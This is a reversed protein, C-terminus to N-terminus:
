VNDKGKWCMTPQFCPTPPLMVMSDLIGADLEAQSDYGKMSQGNFYINRSANGYIEIM